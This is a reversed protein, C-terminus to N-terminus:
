GEEAAAAGQNLKKAMQKMSKKLLYIERYLGDLDRRSPLALVAMAEGRLEEKALNFDELAELTHCLTRTFEPSQFLTMYHGELIKLWGKYYEKFDEPPKEQRGSGGVGRMARLSKKMPLFLLYIFEAMAAQFQHFKETVRNLGEQTQGTLSLQPLNMLQRFDKEYIENCIKFIDQDLNEYGYDGTLPLGEQWGELWQQHLYFYGGWGAQAMQLIIESPAHIGQFVTAVTGPETMLSFFAQWLNLSSMWPERLVVTEGADKEDTAEAGGLGPGMHAMAEWFDMTWKIWAALLPETM